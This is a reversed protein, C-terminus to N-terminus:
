RLRVGMPNVWHHQGLPQTVAPIHLRPLSGLAQQFEDDEKVGCEYQARFNPDQGLEEM